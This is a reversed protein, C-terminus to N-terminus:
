SAVKEQEQQKQKPVGKKAYYLLAISVIMFFAAFYAAQIGSVSFIMIIGIIFSIIALIMRLNKM